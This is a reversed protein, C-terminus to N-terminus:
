FVFQLYHSMQKIVDFDIIILQALGARHREGPLGSSSDRSLMCSCNKEKWENTLYKNNMKWPSQWMCPVNILSFRYELFENIHLFFFFSWYHKVPVVMATPAFPASHDSRGLPVPDPSLGSIHPHKPSIEAPAPSHIETLPLLWWPVKKLFLLM